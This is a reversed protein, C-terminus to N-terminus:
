DWSRPTLKWYALDPCEPGKASKPWPSSTVRQTTTKGVFAQITALPRAFQNADWTGKINPWLEPSPEILVMNEGGIRTAFIGAMWGHEAGVEYFVDGPQMTTMISEIRAQEWPSNGAIADWEALHDTV